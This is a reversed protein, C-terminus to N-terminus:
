KLKIHGQKQLKKIINRVHAHNFIKFMFYTSFYDNPHNQSFFRAATKTIFSHLVQGLLFPPTKRKYLHWSLKVKFEDIMEGGAWGTDFLNGLEQPFIPMNRPTLNGFTRYYISGFRDEEAKLEAAGAGKTLNELIAKGAFGDLYKGQKYFYEGLKKIESFFLNHDKIKGELYRTTQRFHYGSILNSVAQLVDKKVADDAKSRRMLELGFDVLMANYTIIKDVGPMPYTNLLNILMSQVHAPDHIYTRSFLHDHWKTAMALSLRSLGGSFHHGSMYDTVAPTGCYNWATNSKNDDFDHLRVMNPNLFVKLKSHKANVAYALTVLHQKLQHILYDQKINRILAAPAKKSAAATVRNELKNLSNILGQRNYPMVRRRISKPAERSVEAYPLKSGIDKIRQALQPATNMDEWERLLRDFLGNLRVLTNMTPVEQAELIEGINQAYIDKIMYEYDVGDLTLTQNTVGQLVVDALSKKPGVKLEKELLLFVRDYLGKANFPIATMKLLLVDYDYANPAYRATHCLLELLSQFLGHFLQKNEGTLWQFKEAWRFLASVTGPKQIPLREIYDALVNYNDYQSYLIPLTTDTLLHPKHHFKTYVAAFKQIDEFEEAGITRDALETLLQFYDVTQPPTDQPEAAKLGTTIGPTLLTVALFVLFIRRGSPIIHRM